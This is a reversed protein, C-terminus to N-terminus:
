PFDRSIALTDHWAARRLALSADNPGASSFRAVVDVRSWSLAVVALAALAGVVVLRGKWERQQRIAPVAALAMAVVFCGIGSRSKTMLLAVTMVLTVFCV